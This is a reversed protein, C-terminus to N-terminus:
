QRGEILASVSACTSASSIVQPHWDRADSLAMRCANAVRASNASTCALYVIRAAASDCYEIGVPPKAPSSFERMDSAKQDRHLAPKMKDTFSWHAEVLEEPEPRHYLNAEISM